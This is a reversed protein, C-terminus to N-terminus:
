MGLSSQTRRVHEIFAPTLRVDPRRPRPLGIPVVATVKGPRASMVVVQDALYVAEGINHTVLVITKRTREWIALVEQNLQDRTLDDVASFPEDFLLLRPDHILARCIAVRQQMGGSLQRPYHTEFEGLGVLALLERARERYPAAAGHRIEVPLLVNALVSRWALLAPSQFVMGIGPQPGEVPRGDFRVEGATPPVVGLIIKLLTSKGCGSPGVVSVVSGTPVRFSVAELATLEVARHRYRKSVERLELAIGARAGDPSGEV